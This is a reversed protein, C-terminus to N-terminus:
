LGASSRQALARRTLEEVARGDQARKAEIEVVLRDGVERVTAKVPPADGEAVAGLEGNIQCGVLRQLYSANLGREPKIHLEAGVTKQARHKGIQVAKRLPKVEEVRQAGSLLFGSDELGACRDARATGPLGLTLGLGATMSLTLSLTLLGKTKM